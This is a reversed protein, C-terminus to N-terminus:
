DAFRFHLKELLERSAGVYVFYKGNVTFIAEPNAVMSEIGGTCIPVDWCGPAGSANTYGVVAVTEGRALARDVEAVYAPYRGTWDSWRSLVQEDSYFVLQPDLLGNMSFAYRVGSEKLHDIVLRLRRTETLRRPPNTWLFNFQSFERMSLSGLLLVALTLAFAARTPLLRRDVLDVLEVGALLVLLGSLPLLYRGDRADLLVWEALLTSCVSVFLLHSSPCYRRTVLRYLQMLVAAPLVASWVVALTKTIPGPPDVPWRLYYSGTLNVYVQQAVRPLSGFLDPNGLAPGPWRAANTAPALKVLVIAATTVFLYSVGWSLRRRSVLVVFLIPLAGPLWLPQALYMVATLAGAILWRGITDRERDQVLLWLLAATATFSTVYGSRAKMSFVAWAPNLLLLLVIWFSRSAGLLRSLGLFLFLVGVTWLALMAVKLTPAGTGFIVFGLAGAAAEVTALGFHQGYFFIPFEKGQALHKAMLGLYCEDGDLLLNPSLLQPLRSVVIIVALAVLYVWTRLRDSDPAQMTRRFHAGFFQRSNM